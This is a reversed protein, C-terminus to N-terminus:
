DKIMKEIEQRFEDLDKFRRYVSAFRVYAVDDLKKLQKMVLDGIYKSSVEKEGSARIQHLISSMAADIKEASVPRKELALNIGHRLKQEDFAARSDDRKIVRPMMLEINEYTTFRENCVECSRRRRVSNTETVLRSDTVKTDDAQCFPCRM